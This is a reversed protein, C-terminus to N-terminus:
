TCLFNIVYFNNVFRVPLNWVHLLISLTVLSAIDRGLLSNSVNLHMIM